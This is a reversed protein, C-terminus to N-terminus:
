AYEQIQLFIERLNNIVQTESLEYDDRLNLDPEFIRCDSCLDAIPKSFGKSVLNPEFEQLKELDLKLEKVLKEIEDKPEFSQSIYQDINIKKDLFNTILLFYQNRQKWIFHDFLSTKYTLLKIYDQENETSLSKGKLNLAPECKLLELYNRDM